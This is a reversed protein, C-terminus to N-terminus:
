GYMPLPISWNRINPRSIAANPTPMKAMDTTWGDNHTMEGTISMSCDQLSYKHMLEDNSGHATGFVQCSLPAIEHCPPVSPNSSLM